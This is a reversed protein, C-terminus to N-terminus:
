EEKKEVKAEAVVPAESVKTVEAPVEESEELNEEPAAIIGEAILFRDPIDVRLMNMKRVYIIIAFGAIVLILSLLQSTRINTSGIYLSDTRLGELLFRIFGYCIMYTATTEYAHKSRKRVWLLFFFLCTNFLSEYLFTPHVPMSSDLNPCYAKLYSVVESSTMGWPLTTTTGFAEQNVYNGWRGIAQGLPIYAICYDACTSFPIKRIRLMIFAGLYAGLVGGYLALGGSRTDFVRSLDASYYSWNCLVYYLRAGVVASPLSVLLIDCILDSSFRNKKCHMFGLAACLTIGCAIIIGYWYVELGFLKFAVPNVMFKLGLGPFTVETGGM